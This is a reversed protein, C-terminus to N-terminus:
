PHMLLLEVASAWHLSPLIDAAFADGADLAIKARLQKGKTSFHHSAAEALPHGDEPLISYLHENFIRISAADSSQKSAPAYQRQSIFYSEPMM